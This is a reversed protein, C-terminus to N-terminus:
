NLYTFAGETLVYSYSSIMYCSNCTATAGGMSNPSGTTVKLIATKGCKKCACTTSYNSM